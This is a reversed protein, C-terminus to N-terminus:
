AAVVQVFGKAIQTVYFVIETLGLAIVSFCFVENLLCFLVLVFHIILCAVLLCVLGAVIFALYIVLGIFGMLPLTPGNFCFFVGLGNVDPCGIGHVPCFLLSFVNKLQFRM